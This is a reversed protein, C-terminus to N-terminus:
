LEYHRVYKAAAELIEPNDLFLGLGQNCPNCLLARPIPPATHIHDADPTTTFAKHCIACKNDQEVLCENVRDLTWGKKNLLYERIHDPNSQRWQRNRRGYALPNRENYRRVSLLNQLRRTMVNVFIMREELFFPALVAQRYQCEM